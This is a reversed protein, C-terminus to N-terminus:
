DEIKFVFREMQVDDPGELRICYFKVFFVYFTEFLGGNELWGVMGPGSLCFCVMGGVLFFIKM